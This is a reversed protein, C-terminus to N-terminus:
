LQHHDDRLDQQKISSSSGALADHDVVFSREASRAPKDALSRLLGQVRRDPEGFARAQCAEGQALADGAIDLVKCQQCREATEPLDLHAGRLRREELEVDVGGGELADYAELKQGLELPQEHRALREIRDAWGEALAESLM